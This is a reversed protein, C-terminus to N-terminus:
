LIVYFSYYSSPVYLAAKESALLRLPRFLDTHFTTLKRDPEAGLLYEGHGRRSTLHATHKTVWNPGVRQSDM